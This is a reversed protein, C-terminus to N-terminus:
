KDDNWKSRETEEIFSWNPSKQNLVLWNFDDIMKWNDGIEVQNKMNKYSWAYPAFRVSKCNEIITRSTVNIYFDTDLSEHIRLQHCALNLKSNKCKSVFATGSLPGCLIVTNEINNIHVVSPNGFLKIICNKANMIGIDANLLEDETKIITQDAVDQITCTHSRALDNLNSDDIKNKQKELEKTETDEVLKSATTLNKKSKFTFKKKPFLDNRIQASHTSLKTLHEQAKRQEFLSIHTVHDNFFNQLLQIRNSINEYDSTLNSTVENGNSYNASLSNLDALLENYEKYFRNLFIELAM